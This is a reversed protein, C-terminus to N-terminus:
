ILPLLVMFESGKGVGKSSVTVSGGHAGVFSQVLALGIGLGNQTRKGTGVQHFPTFIHQLSEAPIGIGEDTIKIEVTGNNKKLVVTISDGSDSYKSANTILNSFIQELRVPDGSVFLSKIGDKYILTQHREKIHHATSLIARKIIMEINVRERTISLKGESIRSVDLLDDLLRRVIKMRSDMMDLTDMEEADRPASIKLYDIASVVPALPNRLEHALVAIFDNKAQSEAGIRAVANELTSLQSRMLTTNLRRDEELSVIILIVISITILLTQVTFLQVNFLEPPVTSVVNWVGFIGTLLLALTVFRPRMRLAIWFLPFLLLYILYIGFVDAVKFVFLASNIVILLAFIVLTEITEARSRSFRIKGFWRLIFPTVILISFIAGAYHHGWFISTYPAGLSLRTIADLTPFVLSTIGAMAILAFMDSYKRFLPDVNSKRLISAGLLAQVVDAAALTLLHATPIHFALGATLSALLVFPWLRLGGFFLAAIGIATAPYLAASPPAFTATLGYVVFYSVFFVAAVRLQQMTYIQRGHLKMM